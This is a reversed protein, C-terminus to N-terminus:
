PRPSTIRRRIKWSRELGKVILIILVGSVVLLLQQCIIALHQVVSITNISPLAMLAYLVGLIVWVTLAFINFRYIKTKRAANICIILMSIFLGLAAIGSIVDHIGTIQNGRYGCTNLQQSCNLPTLAAAATSISFLLFGCIAILSQKNIRSKNKLVMLVIVVSILGVLIDCGVFLWNYPMGSAELDSAMGIKAVRSNILYGLPWSNYTVALLLALITIPKIKKIIM